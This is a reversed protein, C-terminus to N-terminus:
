QAESVMVIHVVVAVNRRGVASSVDQRSALPAPDFSMM